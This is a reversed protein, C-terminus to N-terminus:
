DDLDISVNSLTGLSTGDNTDLKIMLRLDNPSDAHYLAQEM